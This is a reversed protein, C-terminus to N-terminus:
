FESQEGFRREYKEAMPLRWAVVPVGTRKTYQHVMVQNIAHVTKQDTSVTTAGVWDEDKNASDRPTIEKLGACFKKRIGMSDKTWQRLTTVAQAHKPHTAHHQKALHVEHFM